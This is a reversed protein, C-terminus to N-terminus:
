LPAAVLLAFRGLGLGGELALDLLDAGVAAFQRLVQDVGGRPQAADFGLDLRRLLAELREVVAFVIDAFREVAAAGDDALHQRRQLADAM